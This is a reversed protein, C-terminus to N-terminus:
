ACGLLDLTYSFALVKRTLRCSTFFGPELGPCATCAAFTANYATTRM